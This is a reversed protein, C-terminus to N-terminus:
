GNKNRKLRDIYTQLIIEASLTDVVKKRKKHSVDSESLFKHAAVTSLREDQFVVPIDCLSRLKEAFKEAKETRPGATGNMNLPYGVVIAAVSLEKAKDAVAAATKGLSASEINGIGNALMGLSDSVALGTRADGLDVGLYKEM